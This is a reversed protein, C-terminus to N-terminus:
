GASKRTDLAFRNYKQAAILLVYYLVYHMNNGVTGWDQRTLNGFVLVFILAAGALLVWRTYLGLLTLAGLIAEVFPLVYLFALVSWMPLLPDGVFAQAQKTAWPEVGTIIRMTGHFFINVGMTFRGISYALELDSVGALISTRKGATALGAM